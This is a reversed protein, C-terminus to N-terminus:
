FFGPGEGVRRRGGHGGAALSLSAPLPIQFLFCPLPLV